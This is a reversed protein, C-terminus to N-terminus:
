DRKPPRDPWPHPYLESLYYTQSKTIVAIDYGSFRANEFLLQRCIGCPVPQASQDVSTIAMALILPDAHAFCHALAVQEAHLTLSHSPSFRNVGGYIAQNTTLVAAGYTAIEVGFSFGQELMEDAARLLREATQPELTPRQLAVRSCM